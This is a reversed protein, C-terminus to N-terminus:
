FEQALVDNATDADSYLNSKAYLSAGKTARSLAVFKDTRIQLAEKREQELQALLVDREQKAAAIKQQCAARAQTERLTKSAMVSSYASDASVTEDLLTSFDNLALKHGAFLDSHNQWEARVRQAATLVKTGPMRTATTTTTPM